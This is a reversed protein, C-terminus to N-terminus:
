HLSASSCADLPRGKLLAVYAEGLQRNFHRLNDALNIDKRVELETPTVTRTAGAAGATGSGEAPVSVLIPVDLGYKRFETPNQWVGFKVFPNKVPPPPTFIGHDPHEPDERAAPTFLEMYVPPAPFM